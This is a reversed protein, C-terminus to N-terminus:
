SSLWEIPNQPKAKQRVGFYLAPQQQGGSNGVTAIIEGGEVWEGVQKNLRQNFGYLSLYGDGHDIIALFGYGQMWDAFAVRGASVARVPAGERGAILLSDWKGAGRPDGYRRLVKGRTPWPLHGRLSAFAQNADRAVPFEEGVEGLSAVLKQLNQADSQLATLERSQLSYKQELNVLIESRKERIESLETREQVKRQRLQQLLLHDQQQGLEIRNLREVDNQLQALRQMRSRNLYDLYALMRGTETLDEQNLLLKVPGQRVNLYASRLQKGLTQRQEEVLTHQHERQRRIIALRQEQAKTQQEAEDLTKATEGYLREIEALERQVGSREDALTNLSQQIGAIRARLARLTDANSPSGAPPESWAAVSAVLLALATLSRGRAM